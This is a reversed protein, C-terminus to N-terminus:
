SRFYHNNTLSAFSECLFMEKEKKILQTLLAFIEWLQNRAAEVAHPLSCIFFLFYTVLYVLYGLTGSLGM